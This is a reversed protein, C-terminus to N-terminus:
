HHIKDSVWIKEYDETYNLVTEYVYKEKLNHVVEVKEFDIMTGDATGCPINRITDTQVRVKIPIFQDQFPVMFHLGPSSLKKQLVGFKKYLGVYGEKVQHMGSMLLVAYGAILLLIIAVINM